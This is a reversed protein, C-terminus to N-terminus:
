DRPYRDQAWQRIRGLVKQQNAIVHFTHECDAYYEVQTQKDPSIGFMEQFQQAGCVDECGGTYVFLMDAGRLRLDRLERAVVAPAQDNAFFEAEALKRGAVEESVLGAKRRRWNLWRRKLANRWYRWRLRRLIQARWWYGRTRYGIGDLSVMGVVRRDKVAVQHLHYAGSCLGVLVFRQSGRTSELQAFVERLDALIRESRTANGTRLSSDGLGSLDVRLTTFGQAALERALLVHLRFPGVHHVIGANLVV